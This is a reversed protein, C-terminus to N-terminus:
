DGGELQSPTQPVDIPLAPLIFTTAEPLQLTISISTGYYDSNIYKLSCGPYKEDMINAIERLGAATAPVKITEQLTM